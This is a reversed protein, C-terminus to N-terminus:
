RVRFSFRGVPTSTSPFMPCPGTHGEPCYPGDEYFVQGQFSGRCWRQGKPPALRLRLRQGTAGTQAAMDADGACGAAHPGAATVRYASNHVGHVGLQSRSRFKVVFTTKPSGTSPSVKVPTRDTPAGAALAVAATTVCAAIAAALARISSARM